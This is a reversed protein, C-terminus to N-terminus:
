MDLEHTSMGGDRFYCFLPRLNDFCQPVGRLCRWRHSGRGCVVALVELAELTDIYSGILVFPWMEVSFVGQNNLLVLLCSLIEILILGGALDALSTSFCHFSWTVRHCVLHVELAMDSM